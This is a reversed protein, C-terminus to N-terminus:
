YISCSYYSFKSVLNLVLNVSYYGPLPGVRDVNESGLYSSRVLNLVYMRDASGIHLLTAAQAGPCGRVPGNIYFIRPPSTSKNETNSFRVTFGPVPLNLRGTGTFLVPTCNIRTSGWVSFDYFIHSVSYKIRTKVMCAHSAARSEVQM